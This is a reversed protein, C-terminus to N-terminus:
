SSPVDNDLCYGCRHVCPDVASDPRSPRISADLRHLAREFLEFDLTSVTANGDDYTVTDMLRKGVQILHALDQTMSGKSYPFNPLHPHDAGM